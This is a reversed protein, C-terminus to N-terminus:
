RVVEGAPFPPQGEVMLIPRFNNPKEAGKGVAFATSAASTFAKELGAAM